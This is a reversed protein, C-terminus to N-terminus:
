EYNNWNTASRFTVELITLFFVDRKRYESFLRKELIRFFFVKRIFLRKELLVTRLEEGRAVRAAWRWHPRRKFLEDLKYDKHGHCCDHQLYLLLMNGIGWWNPLLCRPIKHSAVIKTWHWETLQIILSNFLLFIM